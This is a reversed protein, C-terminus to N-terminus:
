EQGGLGVAEPIALCEAFGIDVHVPCSGPFQAV